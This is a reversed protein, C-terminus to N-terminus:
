FYIRFFFEMITNISLWLERTSTAYNKLWDRESPCNFQKWDKCIFRLSYDQLYTVKYKNLTDKPYIGFAWTYIFMYNAKFQQIEERLLQVM